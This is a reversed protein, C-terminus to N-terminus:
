CLRVREQTLSDGLLRRKQKKSTKLLSIPNVYQDSTEHFDIPSGDPASVRHHFSFVPGRPPEFDSPKPPPKYRLPSTESAPPEREKPDPTARSSDGGFGAAARSERKKLSEKKHRSPKDRSTATPMDDLPKIDPLSLQPTLERKLPLVPGSPESAM